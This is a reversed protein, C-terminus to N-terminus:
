IAPHFSHTISRVANVPTSRVLTLVMVMPKPVLFLGAAPPVPVIYKSSMRSTRYTQRLPQHPTYILPRCHKSDPAQVSQSPIPGPQKARLSAAVGKGGSGSLKSDRVHSFSFGLLFGPSCPRFILNLQELSKKWLAPCPFYCLSGSPRKLRDFVLCVVHTNLRPFATV